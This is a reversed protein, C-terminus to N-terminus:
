KNDFSSILQIEFFFQWQTFLITTNVVGTANRKEWLAEHRNNNGDYGSISNTDKKRLQRKKV